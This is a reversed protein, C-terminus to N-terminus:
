ILHQQSLGLYKYQFGAEITGPHDALAPAETPLLVSRRIVMLVGVFITSILIDPRNIIPYIASLM